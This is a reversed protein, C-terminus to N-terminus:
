EEKKCHHGLMALNIAKLLEEPNLGKVLYCFVERHTKSLMKPLPQKGSIMIVPLNRADKIKRLAQYFHYGDVKPLVADLIVLDINRGKVIDLAEKGDSAMLTSYGKETLIDSITERTGPDDDVVLIVKKGSAEPSAQDNGSIAEIEQLIDIVRNPDFPKYLCAYASGEIAMRVLDKTDERYATMMVAKIKPNLKRIAFYTKLGNLIPLKMDIFVVAPNDRKVVELAKNYSDAMSLSYGRDELIDKLTQCTNPNDDVIVALFGKSASRNISNVLDQIDLPKHVIKYVGEELASKVIGDISYATMLIVTIKQNIKKIQRYLDLGNMTPMKVDILALDFYERELREIVLKPDNIVTVFYGKEDLIDSLTAALLNDDDVILVKTMKKM